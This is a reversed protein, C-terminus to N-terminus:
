VGGTAASESSEGIVRLFANEVTEKRPALGRIQLGAAHAQQFVLATTAHAPLTVALSVPSLVECTTGTAGLLEALRAADAKLEVVIDSDRGRVGRLEDITGVFRVRGRHMIIAQDCVREVDPLLHTSLVIACSRRDPLDAILEIMEDRARPDLGNTPEDLFLIEPDHVLAQALKVRQKMGTSYGDIPQYRKEELGAYYLAAHARQMAETRPLGSLEAAYTCLEVANMGLLLAEQEPMYGVRDRIEAGRTGADIGLVHASGNFSILGLMSKLLTSKGAGNPGLLGIIKGDVVASVDTLAQVAGYRKSLHRLEILPPAEPVLMSM